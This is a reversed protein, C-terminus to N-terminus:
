TDNYNGIVIGEQHRGKGIISFGGFFRINKM